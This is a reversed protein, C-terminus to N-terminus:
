APEMTQVTKRIMKGKANVTFTVKRIYVPYNDGESRSEKIAERAESETSYWEGWAFETNQDVVEFHAIKKM